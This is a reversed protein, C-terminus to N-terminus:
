VIMEERLLEALWTKNEFGVSYIKIQGSEKLFRKAEKLANASIGNSKAAADLNSVKQPSEKKLFELIFNRAKYQQTFGEKFLAINFVDYGQYKKSHVGYATLHSYFEKKTLYPIDEIRRVYNYYEYVETKKSRVDDGIRCYKTLFLSIPDIESKADINDLLNKADVCCEERLIDSHTINAIKILADIRYRTDGKNPM